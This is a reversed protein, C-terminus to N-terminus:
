AKVVGMTVPSLIRGGAASMRRLVLRAENADV